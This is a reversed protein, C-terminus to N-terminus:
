TKLPNKQSTANVTISKMIGDTRAARSDENSDAGQGGTYAVIEGDALNNHAELGGESNPWAPDAMKTRSNCNDLGIQQLSYSSM